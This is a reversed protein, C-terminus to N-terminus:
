ATPTQAGAVDADAPHARVLAEIAAVPFCASALLETAEEVIGSYVFSVGRSELVKPILQAVVYGGAAAYLLAYPPWSPGPRVLWERALARRHRVVIVAAPLAFAVKMPQYAWNLGARKWAFDFERVLALCVCLLLIVPMWRAAAGAVRRARLAHAGFV